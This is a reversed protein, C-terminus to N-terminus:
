SRSAASSRPLRSSQWAAFLLVGLMLYWWVFQASAHAWPGAGHALAKALYTALILLSLAAAWITWYRDSRLAFVLCLALKVVGVALMLWLPFRWPQWGFYWRLSESGYHPLFTALLLWALMRERRGGKWIVLSLAVVSALINIWPPIM